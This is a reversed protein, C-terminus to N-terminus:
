AGWSKSQRCWRGSACNVVWCLVGQREHLEVRHGRLAAVPAAELGGPGGGIVLVHKQETAPTLAGWALEHGTEPNHLCRISRGELNNRICVNAGVCPRIDRWHGAQAKRVLNPDAVNIYDLKGTADLRQAIEQMQPLTLSSARKAMEADPIRIGVIFDPGAAERVVDIIRLCVKMRNELSGGYEDTRENSYPSFFSAIFLGYAGLIEVGDMGGERVRRAAKGFSQIVEEIEEHTVEHPM